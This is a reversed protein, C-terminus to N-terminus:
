VGLFKGPLASFEFAAQIKFIGHILIGEVFKGAALDNQFSFLSICYVMFVIYKFLQHPVGVCFFSRVNHRDWDVFHLANDALVFFADQRFFKLVKGKDFVFFNIKFVGLALIVQGPKILCVCYKM